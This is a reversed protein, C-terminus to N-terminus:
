EDMVGLRQLIAELSEPSDWHIEWCGSREGRRYTVRTGLKYMLKEKFENLFPELQDEKLEIQKKQVPKEKVCKEVERVSLGEKVVKEFLAIQKDRSPLALIVKAHGFSIEGRAIAQQIEPPLNLIRLYNAISSRKKGVRLALEEQTLSFEVLLKSCSTAIEIPNLDVRQINEILCSLASRSEEMSMVSAPVWEWGLSIVARLRREGSVLEYMDGRQRVVLPQLLGVSEISSALEVIEEVFFNKRMQHPSRAIDAIRIQIVDM